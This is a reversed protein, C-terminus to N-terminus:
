HARIADAAAKVAAAETHTLGSQGSAVHWAFAYGDGRAADEDRPHVVGYNARDGVEVKVDNVIRTTIVPEDVVYGSHRLNVRVEVERGGPHRIIAQRETGTNAPGPAKIEVLTGNHTGSHVTPLCVRQGPKMDAVKTETYTTTTDSM